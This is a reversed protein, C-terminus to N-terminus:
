MMKTWRWYLDMVRWASKWRGRQCAAQRQRWSLQQMAVFRPTLKDHCVIEGQTCFSWRIKCTQYHTAATDMKIIDLIFCAALTSFVTLRIVCLRLYFPKYVIWTGEKLMLIEFANEISGIGLDMTKCDFILCWSPCSVSNLIWKLISSVWSVFESFHKSVWPFDM